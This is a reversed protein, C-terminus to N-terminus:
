RRRRRGGGGGGTRVMQFASITGGAVLALGPAAFAYFVPMGFIGMSEYLGPMENVTANAATMNEDLQQISQNGMVFGMTILIFGLLMAVAVVGINKASM